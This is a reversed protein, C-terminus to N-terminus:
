IKYFCSDCIRVPVKVNYEPIVERNTSCDGCVVRGCHHCNHKDLSTQARSALTSNWSFLAHCCACVTANSFPIWRQPQESAHLSLKCSKLCNWYSLALHDSVCDSYLEIRNLPRFHRTVISARFTGHLKWLHVIRGMPFLRQPLNADVVSEAGAPQLLAMNPPALPMATKQERRAVEPMAGGSDSRTKPAWVSSLRKQYASVDQEFMPRWNDM